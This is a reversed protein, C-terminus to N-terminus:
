NIFFKHLSDSGVTENELAIGAAYGVQLRLFHWPLLQLLAVVQKHKLQVFGVHPVHETPLEFTVNTLHM